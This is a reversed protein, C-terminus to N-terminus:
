PIFVKNGFKCCGAVPNIRLLIIGSKLNLSYYVYVNIYNPTILTAVTFFM